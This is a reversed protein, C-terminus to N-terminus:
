NEDYDLCVRKGVYGRLDEPHWFRLKKGDDLLVEVEMKEFKRDQVDYIWGTVKELIGEIRRQM